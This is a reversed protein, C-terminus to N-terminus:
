KRTRRLILQLFQVSIDSGVAEPVNINFESLKLNFSAQLICTYNMLKDAHSFKMKSLTNIKINNLKIELPIDLNYELHDWTLFDVPIYGNFMVLRNKSSLISDIFTIGSTFTQLNLSGNITSNVPDYDFALKHSEAFFASDNYNGAALVYGNATRYATQSYSKYCFM